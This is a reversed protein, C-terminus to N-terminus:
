FASELAFNIILWIMLKHAFLLIQITAKSLVLIQQSDLYVRLKISSKDIIKSKIM